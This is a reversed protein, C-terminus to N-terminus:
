LLYLAAIGVPFPTIPARRGAHTYLFPAIIWSYPLVLTKRLSSCPYRLTQFHLLKPKSRLINLINQSWQSNEASWLDIHCADLSLTLRKCYHRSKAPCFSLKIGSCTASTSCYLSPTGAAFLSRDWRIHFSFFPAEFHCYHSKMRFQSSLRRLLAGHSFSSMGMANSFLPQSGIIATLIQSSKCNVNM